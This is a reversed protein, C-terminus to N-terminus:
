TLQGFPPAYGSPRPCFASLAVNLVQGLERVPIAELSARLWGPRSCTLPLMKVEGEWLLQSAM